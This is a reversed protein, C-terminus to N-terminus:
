GCCRGAGKAGLEWSVVVSAPEHLGSCSRNAGPKQHMGAFGPKWCIGTGVLEWLGLYSRSSWSWSCLSGALGLM